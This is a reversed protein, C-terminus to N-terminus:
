LKIAANLRKGNGSKLIKRKRNRKTVYEIRYKLYKKKEGLGNIHETNTLKRYM